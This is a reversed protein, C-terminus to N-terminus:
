SISGCKWGISSPSLNESDRLITAAMSKPPKGNSTIDAQIGAHAVVVEYVGDNVKGAVIWLTKLVIQSEAYHGHFARATQILAPVPVGLNPPVSHYFGALNHIVRNDGRRQKNPVLSSMTMLQQMEQAKAYWAEQAVRVEPTYQRYRPRASLLKLEQLESQTPIIVGGLDAIWGECIPVETELPKFGREDLYRYVAATVKHTLETKNRDAIM